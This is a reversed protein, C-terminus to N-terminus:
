VFPRRFWIWDRRIHAYSRHRDRYCAHCLNRLNYSLVNDIEYPKTLCRNFSVYWLPLPYKISMLAVSSYIIVLQVREKLLKRGEKMKSVINLGRNYKRWRHKQITCTVYGRFKYRCSGNMLEFVFRQWLKLRAIAVLWDDWRSFEYHYVYNPVDSNM